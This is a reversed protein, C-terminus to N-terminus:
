HANCLLQMVLASTAATVVAALGIPRLLFFNTTYSLASTLAILVFEATVFLHRAPQSHHLIELHLSGFAPTLRLVSPQFITTM